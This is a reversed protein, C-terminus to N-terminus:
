QTTTKKEKPSADKSSSAKSLSKASLTSATKDNTANPSAPPPSMLSAASRAASAKVGGGAASVGAPKALLAAAKVEAAKQAFKAAAIDRLLQPNGDALVVSCQSPLQDLTMPRKERAKATIVLPQPIPLPAPEAKDNAIIKLWDELEKGCGDEGPVSNQPKCSDSGPPCTVRVHFHYYHGWYPRVKTLWSRDDKAAYCLVQKIAPHVFIREVESYSAARKIINLHQDTWVDRNVTLNDDGLMSTAEITEREQNSLRRDPMPTLWIDADLGIQHSAHGTLMPGGRPQAIDGVLLGPWGDKKGDTALREILSILKPHGWNRNRSLRMAQWAPGDVPLAQGGALCGKAYSGISRASLPAPARVAGFLVKAPRLGPTGGQTTEAPDVAAAPPTTVSAPLAIPTIIKNGVDRAPEINGLVAAGLGAAEHVAVVVSGDRPESAIIAAPLSVEPVLAGMDIHATLPTSTTTEQMVVAPATWRALGVAKADPIPGNPTPIDAVARPAVADASRELATRATSGQEANPAVGFATLALGCGVFALALESFVGAIRM